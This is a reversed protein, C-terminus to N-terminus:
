SLFEIAQTKIQPWADWSHGVGSILIQQSPADLDTLHQASLLYQPAPMNDQQFAVLMIPSEDTALLNYPSAASLNNPAYNNVDRKFTGNLLSQPDDFLMAPSMCVAKKVLSKTMLYAAHSAGASGGIAFVTGNCRSDTKAAAAAITVDNTQDPFHGDSVQGTLKNPPATRYQVNSFVVFGATVLDNVVMSPVSHLNKFGGGPICLVAPHKEGDTPTLVKWTLPTGDNATGYQEITMKRRRKM